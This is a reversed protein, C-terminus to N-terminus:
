GLSAGSHASLRSLGLRGGTCLCMPCGQVGSSFAWAPDTGRTVRCVVPGLLAGAGRATCVPEQGGM